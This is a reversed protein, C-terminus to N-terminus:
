GYIAVKTKEIEKIFYQNRLSRETVLDIERHFLERLEDHLGWWNEGAELPELNDNFNILFDIDSSENFRDTVASGFVFASKVGRAKMLSIVKPLHLVISQHLM